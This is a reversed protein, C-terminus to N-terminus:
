SRNGLRAIVSDLPLLEREGTSRRKLEVKGDALGKPGIVVQWPIGILDATAFKGGPREDRDDYLVDYGAATLQRYLTDCAEDTAADGTKLNLLAVDYPAVSEPWIIGNEDHSAEIIAAILRSPGIGYSGMHVEHEQGDPGMVKAGMPASYKTGFYFIHGVEIGRASMQKDAPVAEFGAADHMESTAAYLSTWKDVTSQLGAVNDFDTTEPPIPFDLYDAHCFVESEGTSALIIFEHSLDGGIPGTDARMPIAKLGLRAFTRLYAVFMKNYSHRAGAQDLDFSYADKMLFERSRMVGFRPRVEDRFKWQIHYLNLPLDKYSRVYARFIETIMEENTPGFLMERDHRDQIRLMEKGYADYRGSERWLDASQITPMLLEIAGSRNQEERIIANVKNLVRLGLPLWAYIGAAEQRILGARLMLRHSVIEAEKPTERLTPLFYRSLRM